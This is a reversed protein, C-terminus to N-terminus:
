YARVCIDSPVLKTLLFGVDVKQGTLCHYIDLSIISHSITIHFQMYVDISNTEPKGNKICM